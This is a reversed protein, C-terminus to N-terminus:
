FYAGMDLVSHISQTETETIDDQRRSIQTRIQTRKKSYKHKRM